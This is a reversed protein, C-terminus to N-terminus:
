LSVLLDLNGARLTAPVIFTSSVHRRYYSSMEGGEMSIKPLGRAFCDRSGLIGKPDYRGCIEEGQRIM